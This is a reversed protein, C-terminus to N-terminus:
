RSHVWSRQGFFPLSTHLIDQNTWSRLTRSPRHTERRGLAGFPSPRPTAHRPIHFLSPLPFTPRRTTHTCVHSSRQSTPRESCSDTTSPSPRRQPVDALTTRRRDFCRVQVITPDKKSGEKFEEFTVACRVAHAQPALHSLSRPSARQHDHNLDMMAFIKDVRQLPLVTLRRGRRGLTVARWLRVKQATDEDLPLKVMEGTMDYISQVIQLMEDYTILGDNNIDYLQFAGPACACSRTLEWGM